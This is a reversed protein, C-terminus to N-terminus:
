VTKAKNWLRNHEGAFRSALQPMNRFLFRDESHKSSSSGSMNASGNFVDDGVTGFKEHMVKGSIIRVDVDLGQDRMEKLADIAKGNYSKYLIARVKVGREVAQRLVAFEPTNPSVGYMAMRFTQGPQARRLMDVVVSSLNAEQDAMDSRHSPVVDGTPQTDVDRTNGSTPM